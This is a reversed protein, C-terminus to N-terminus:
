HAQLLQFTDNQIQLLLVYYFLLHDENDSSYHQYLLHKSTSKSEQHCAFLEALRSEHNKLLETLTINCQSITDLMESHKDLREKDRSLADQIRGTKLDCVERSVEHLNQEM